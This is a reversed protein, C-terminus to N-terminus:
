KVNLGAPVPPLDKFIRRVVDSDPFLVVWVTLIILAIDTRFGFHDLYWLELAGKYPAIVNAYFDDVSEGRKGVDALLKEEGRFVVSGIGSLGPRVSYIRAKTEPPYPNFTKDVLPRPGIVSMDGLFINFLQPLENIKTKRLFGGMPLIRPDKEMTHLGGAMNPSNRLMTAFKWIKFYSNNRGIRKQGYFIDHEGTLKLGIMVPILLPSLVLIAAGSALIDFARKFLPYINM